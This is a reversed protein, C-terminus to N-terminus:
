AQMCTHLCATCRPVCARVCTRVHFIENRKTFGWASIGLFRGPDLPSMIKTPPGEPRKAVDQAPLPLCHCPLSPRHMGTVM